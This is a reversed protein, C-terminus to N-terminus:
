IAPRFFYTRRERVLASDFHYVDAFREEAETGDRLTGRFLGFAVARDGEVVVAELAHRGHAISRRVRYFDILDDLGQVPPFGPREYVVDKHFFDSLRDIVGSDIAAFMGHVREALM